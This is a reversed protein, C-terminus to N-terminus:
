DDTSEDWLAYAGATAGFLKVDYGTDDVGVTLTNSVTTAGTLTNAGAGSQVLGAGGVLKLDDTSEDWLAYAGSTAGFLKVDYGTDDVGVTVTADAQVAGDIDVADLNTIGDVDINGSMNVSESSNTTIIELIGAKGNADFSLASSNNDILDIDTAQTVM